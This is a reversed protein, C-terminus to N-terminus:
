AARECDCCEQHSVASDLEKYVSVFVGSKLFYM